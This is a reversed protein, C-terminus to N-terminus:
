VGRKEELWLTFIFILIESGLASISGVVMTTFNFLAQNLFLKNNTVKVEFDFYNTVFLIYLLTHKLFFFLLVQFLLSYM